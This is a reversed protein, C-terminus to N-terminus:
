EEIRWAVTVLALNSEGQHTHCELGAAAQVARSGGWAKLLELGIYPLGM